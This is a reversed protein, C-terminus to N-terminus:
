KKQKRKGRAKHKPLEYSIKRILLILQIKEESPIFGSIKNGSNYYIDYHKSLLYREEPTFRDIIKNIIEKSDEYDHPVYLDYINLPLFTKNNSDLILKNNYIKNKVTKVANYITCALFVRKEYDKSILKIYVDPKYSCMESIPILYNTPLNRKIETTIMPDDYKFINILECIRENLFSDTYREEDAINRKEQQKKLEKKLIRLAKLEIQRISEGKLITKRLGKKYLIDSIQSLTKKESYFGYKLEMILRQEQSLKELAEYLESYNNQMIKEEPTQQDVDEIIDLLEYDNEESIKENLSHVPNFLNKYQKIEKKDMNLENALEKISPMRKLKSILQNEVKIIKTFNEYQNIPIRISRENNMVYRLIKQKIWITAYTQFKSKNPEYDKLARMIGEIGEYLLDEFSNVRHRYKNAIPFILKINHLILKNKIENDNTKKYLEYLENTEENTLLPMNKYYQLATVNNENDKTDNNLYNSDIEKLDENIEESNKTYYYKLLKKYKNCNINNILKNEIAIKICNNLLDTNSNVYEYLTYNLKIDNVELAELLDDIKKICNNKDINKFLAKIYLIVCDNKSYINKHTMLDM